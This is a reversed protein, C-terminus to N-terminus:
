LTETPLSTFWKKGSDRLGCYNAFANIHRQTTASYGSWLRIFRGNVFAAVPTSYSVLVLGANTDYVKAKGYFSKHSDNPILAFSSNISINRM